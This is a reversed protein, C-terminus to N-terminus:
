FGRSSINKFKQNGLENGFHIGITKPQWIYANYVARTRVSYAGSGVEANRLARQESSWPIKSNVEMGHEPEVLQLLNWERKSFKLSLEM